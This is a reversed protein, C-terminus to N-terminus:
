AGGSGAEGGEKGETAEEMPAPDGEREAGEDGGGDEVLEGEWRCMADGRAQCLSHELHVPRLASQTLVTRCFGTLFNCADGGPDADIFPLGRGEVSFPGRGFGGIRRGFLRKLEKKVRRRALAYVLRRPARRRWRGSGDRWALTEGTREFIVRADPRRIVLRFLDRIEHDTLRVGRKVDAEYTRIRREVVGSLGLRRPMTVTPNEEEMVEGPHDQERIVELLRLAVVPLVRRPPSAQSPTM